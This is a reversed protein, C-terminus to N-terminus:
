VNLLVDNASFEGVFRWSNKNIIIKQIDNYRINSRLIEFEPDNSALIEERTHVTGGLFYNGSRKTVQSDLEDEGRERTIFKFAYPKAGYREVIGKSMEVAKDVDWSDILMETTEPVFTGPSYFVVFHKKM